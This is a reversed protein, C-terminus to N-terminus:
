SAVATRHRRPQGKRNASKARTSWKASATDFRASPYFTRETGCGRCRAAVAGSHDPAECLWHHPKGICTNM